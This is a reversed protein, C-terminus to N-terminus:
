SKKGVISIYAYEEKIIECYNNDALCKNWLDPTAKKLNIL